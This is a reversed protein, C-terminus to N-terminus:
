CFIRWNHTPIYFNGDIDDEESLPFDLWTEPHHAINSAFALSEETIGVAGGIQDELRFPLMQALDRYGGSRCKASDVENEEDRVELNRDAGFLDPRERRNPLPPPPPPALFSAVGWIQRTLTQKLESFDEKMGGGRQEDDDSRDSDTEGAAVKEAFDDSNTNDNDGDDLRLSTAISRALWSM